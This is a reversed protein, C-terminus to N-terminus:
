GEMKELAIREAKEMLPFGLMIYISSLVFLRGAVVLWDGTVMGGLLSSRLLDVADTVPILMGAYQLVSPLYEKPFTIGCLLFILSFLTNQTVYTNRTYLMLCGLMMSIGFFGYLSLLVAIVFKWGSFDNIQLGFILGILIAILLELFTTMTQLTMNGLFYASRHFPALMLSDLTGERLETVLTRSVNLCTRVVFMYTCSGIIVYSMYDGTGTYQSFSDSLREEFFCHYLLWAGLNTYVGTTLCSVMFSVPYARLRVQLEKQITALFVKVGM